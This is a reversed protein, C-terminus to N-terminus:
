VICVDHGDIRHKIAAAIHIVALGLMTYALWMHLTATTTELNFGALTEMTPFIKSMNIGFWTVGHGGFDTEAWGIGIILAPLIYLGMHGLHSGIEELKSLGAVPPPIKSAIRVIIRLILLFLLTVGISIHLSFLIEELASDDEVVSTMAYGCTWMFIFGVAMLWHLLRALFSYKDQAM